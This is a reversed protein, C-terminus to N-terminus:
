KKAGAKQLIEVVETHGHEQAGMLATLGDKDQADVDAGADLLAQVTATHGSIAADMLATGRMDDQFNVDAGADLLAQVTATDGREAADILEQNIDQANVLPPILLALFLIVKCAHRM